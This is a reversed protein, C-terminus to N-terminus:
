VLGIGRIVLYGATLLCVSITIVKGHRRFFSELRALGREASAPSLIRWLLPVLIPLLAGVTLLAYGGARLAPDAAAVAVDRGGALVLVLTSVNTAMMAIGLGLLALGAWRSSTTKAARPSSPRPRRVATVVALATLIAALVLDFVDAVAGASRHTKVVPASALALAVAVVVGSGLLYLALLRPGRRGFATLIGLSAGVLAPSIAAGLALPLLLLLLPTGAHM